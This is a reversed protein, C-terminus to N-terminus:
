VTHLTETRKRCQREHAISLSLGLEILNGFQFVPCHGFHDFSQAPLSDHAYRGVQVSHREPFSLLTDCCGQFIKRRSRFAQRLCLCRVYVRAVCAVRPRSFAPPVSSGAAGPM